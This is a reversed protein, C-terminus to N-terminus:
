RGVVTDDLDVITSGVMRSRGCTVHNIADGDSSVCEGRRDAVASIGPLHPKRTPTRTM